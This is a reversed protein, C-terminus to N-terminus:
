NRFSFINRLVHALSADFSEEDNITLRVGAVLSPTIKEEYDYHTAAFQKLLIKKKDPSLPRASEITLLKKEAKERTIKEVERIITQHKRVDGNKQLLSLFNAFAQDLRAGTKGEIAEVLARAYISPSISM